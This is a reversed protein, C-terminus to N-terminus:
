VDLVGSEDETPKIGVEQATVLAMRRMRGKNEQHMQQLVRWTLLGRLLIDMHIAQRNPRISGSISNASSLSPSPLEKIIGLLNTPIACMSSLWILVCPVLPVSLMNVMYLTWLRPGRLRSQFQFMTRWPPNMRRHPQALVLQGGGSELIALNAASMEM